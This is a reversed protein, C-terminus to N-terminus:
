PLDILHSLSLSLPSPRGLWARPACEQSRPATATWACPFPRHPARIPQVAPASRAFRVACAFASTPVPSKALPAAASRLDARAAASVILHLPGLTVNVQRAEFYYLRLHQVPPRSPALLRVRKWKRDPRDGSPYNPRDLTRRVVPGSHPGGCPM